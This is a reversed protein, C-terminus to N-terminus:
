WMIFNDNGVYASIDDYNIALVILDGLPLVGFIGGCTIFYLLILTPKGGLYVRHVALGGVFIDLLIAVLPDKENLSASQNFLEASTNVDLSFDTNVEVGKSLVEEVASDDVYYSSATANSLGIILFLSFVALLKKM